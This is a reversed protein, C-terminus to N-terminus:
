ASATGSGAGPGPDRRDANARLEAIFWVRGGIPLRAGIGDWAKADAPADPFMQAGAPSTIGRVALRVRQENIADFYPRVADERGPGGAPSPQGPPVAPTLEDAEGNLVAHVSRLTVEYARAFQELRGPVYTGPRENNEVAVVMRVNPNGAETLPLRDGAFTRRILYGLELRRARFLRGLLEWREDAAGEVAHHRKNGAVAM